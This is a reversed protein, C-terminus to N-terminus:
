SPRIVLQFSSPPFSWGTRRTPRYEAGASPLGEFLVDETACPLGAVGGIVALLQCGAGRAADHAACPSDRVLHQVGDRANGACEAVALDSGGGTAPVQDVPYMMKPLDGARRQM